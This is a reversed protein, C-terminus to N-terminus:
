TISYFNDIDAEINDKDTTKNNEYFLGEQIEESM